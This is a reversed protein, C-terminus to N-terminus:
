IRIGDEKIKFVWKSGICNKGPPLDTLTWVNMNCLNKFEEMMANIWHQKDSRNIAERFTAPDSDTLNIPVKSRLSLAKLAPPMEVIIEDYIPREPASQLLHSPTFSTSTSTSSGEFDKAM